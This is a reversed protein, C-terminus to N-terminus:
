SGYRQQKAKKLKRNKPPITFYMDYFYLNNCYSGPRYKKRGHFNKPMREGTVVNVPYAGVFQRWRGNSMVKNVHSAGHSRLYSKAMSRLLKRM